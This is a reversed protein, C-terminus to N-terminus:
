LASRTFKEIQALRCCLSQDLSPFSIGKLRDAQLIYM